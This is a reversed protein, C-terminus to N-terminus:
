GASGRRSLWRPWAFPRSPDGSSLRDIAAALGAAGVVLLVISVWAWVLRTTSRAEGIVPLKWELALLLSAVVLLAAIPVVCATLYRRWSERTWHPRRRLYGARTWLLMDISFYGLALYRLLDRLTSDPLFSAVTLGLIVVLNGITRKVAMPPV